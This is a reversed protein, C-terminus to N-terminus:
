PTGPLGKYPPRAIMRIRKKCGLDCTKNYSSLLWIYMCLHTHIYPAPPTKDIGTVPSMICHRVIIIRSGKGEKEYNKIGLTKVVNNKQLNIIGKKEGSVRHLIFIVRTREGVRVRLGLYNPRM